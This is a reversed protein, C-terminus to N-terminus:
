ERRGKQADQLEARSLVSQCLETMDTIEVANKAASQTTWGM